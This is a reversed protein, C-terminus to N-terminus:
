RLQLLGNRDAVRRLYRQGLLCSVHSSVQAFRSCFTLLGCGFGVTTLVTIAWYFSTLYRTGEPTTTDIGRSHIWGPEEPSTNGEEDPELLGSSGMTGVFFWLCGFLHCTYLILLAAGILKGARELSELEEEYQYLTDRLKALRLLKTLRVM